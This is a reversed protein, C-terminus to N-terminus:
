ARSISSNRGTQISSANVVLAPMVSHVGSATGATPVGRFGCNLLTWYNRHIFEIWDKKGAPGGTARCAWGRRPQTRALRNPLALSRGGSTIIAWNQKMYPVARGDAERSQVHYFAGAEASSVVPGSGGGVDPM